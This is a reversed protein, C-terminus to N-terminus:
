ANARVAAAMADTVQRLEDATITFPPVAYVVNGIPRLWVSRELILPALNRREFAKETEVALFGGRCRVERVHGLAALPELYELGMREIVAVRQAVPEREFLDLSANAAACCLPNGM